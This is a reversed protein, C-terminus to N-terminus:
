RVRLGVIKGKEIITWMGYQPNWIADPYGLPKPPPVAPVPTPPSVSVETPISVAQKEGRRWRQFREWLSPKEEVTEEPMPAIMKGLREAESEEELRPMRVRSPEFIRNKAYFDSAMQTREVRSLTMQQRLQRNANDWRSKNMDLEAMKSQMRAAALQSLVIHQQSGPQLRDITKMDELYENQAALQGTKYDTEALGYVDTPQVIPMEPERSETALEYLERQSLTTPDVPESVFSLNYRKQPDLTGTVEQGTIPDYAVMRHRYIPTGNPM